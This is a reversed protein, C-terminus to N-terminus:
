VIYLIAIKVQKGGLKHMLEVIDPNGLVDHVIYSILARLKYKLNWVSLDWM